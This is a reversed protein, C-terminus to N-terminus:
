ILSIVYYKNHNDKEFLELFFPTVPSFMFSKHVLKDNSSRVRKRFMKGARALIKPVVESKIM